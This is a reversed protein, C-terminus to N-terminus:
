KRGAEVFGTKLHKDREQFLLQVKAVQAKHQQKTFGHKAYDIGYAKNAQETNIQEQIDGPTPIATVVPSGAEQFKAGLNASYEIFDPDNGFKGLLREKFEVDGVTGSEVAANGLHKRQEYANGWKAYLGNKLTTSELEADQANKALVAIVNSNNFAFLADAQKQSLGIKHFLEQAATALEQSYHEEPLEEPRTLNYDAATDPRGGAAYYADWEVDSSAENPKVIKDKGFAKEASSLSKMIGEFNSVRDFVKDGRIDEPLTERWGEKLEGDSNVLPIPPAAPPAVPPEAPPAVPEVM